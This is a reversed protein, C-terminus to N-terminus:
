PGRQRYGARNHFYVRTSFRRAHREVFNKVEDSDADFRESLIKARQADDDGLLELFIDVFSPLRNSNAADFSFYENTLTGDSGAAYFNLAAVNEALVGMNASQHRAGGENPTNVFWNRNRYAQNQPAAGQTPCDTRMLQYTGLRTGDFTDDDTAERVWYYIQRSTREHSSSGEVANDRLSVFCMESNMHGFSRIPWPTTPYPNQRPYPGTNGVDPRMVFTIIGDAITYELDQAMMTLAARGENNTDARSTGLKWARDSETFIVGMISVIIMLIAIAALLEILTFGRRARRQPTEYM